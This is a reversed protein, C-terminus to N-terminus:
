LPKWTADILAYRTRIPDPVSPNDKYIPFRPDIPRNDPVKALIGTIQMMTGDNLATLKDKLQIFLDLVYVEGAKTKLAGGFLTLKEGLHKPYESSCPDHIEVKGADLFTISSLHWYEQAHYYTQQHKKYDWYNIGALRADRSWDLELTTSHGAISWMWDKPVKGVIGMIHGIDRAGLLALIKLAAAKEMGIHLEHRQPGNCAAILSLPLSQLIQRRNM